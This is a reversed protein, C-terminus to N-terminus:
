IFRWKALAFGLIMLIWTAPEPVSTTLATPIFGGPFNSEMTTLQYGPYGDILPVVMYIWGTENLQRYNVESFTLPISSPIPHINPSLFEWDLNIEYYGSAAYTGPNFGTNIIDLTAQPIPITYSAFHTAIGDGLFTTVNSFTYGDINAITGSFTAKHGPATYTLTIM